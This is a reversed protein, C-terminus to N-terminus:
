ITKNVFLLHKEYNQTRVINFAFLSNNDSFKQSLIKEHHKWLTVSQDIIVMQVLCVSMYM